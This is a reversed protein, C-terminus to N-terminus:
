GNDEEDERDTPREDRRLPYDGEPWDEPLVLRRPDPHGIMEVGLMEAVEREYLVAAPVLPTISDIEDVGKDVAARVNLALGGTVFHYLVEIQRGTDVGTITSLYVPAWTDIIFRAMGRVDEPPVGVWADVESTAEAETLEGDYEAQIREVLESATVAM